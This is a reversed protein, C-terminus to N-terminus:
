GCGNFLLFSVEPDLDVYTPCHVKEAFADIHEGVFLFRISVGGGCRGHVGLDLLRERRFVSDTQPLEARLQDARALLWVHRIKAVAFIVPQGGGGGGLVEKPLELQFEFDVLLKGFVVVARLMPQQPRTSQVLGEQSDLALLDDAVTV